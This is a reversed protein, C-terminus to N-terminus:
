GHRKLFTRARQRVANRSNRLQGRAFELVPRPDEVLEFLMELGKLVHGLAVNRCEPTQYTARKVRLLSHVVQDVLYPKALAIKAAGGITNAATILTPGTIPRLYRELLADLRNDCDVAALNGLIIIGGWKLINNRHDLLAVFRDFHPYLLAPHTESLLRLAKLCGYKVRAADAELGSLIDDLLAPRAVLKEVVGDVDSTGSAIEKLLPTMM